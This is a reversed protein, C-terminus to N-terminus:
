AFADQSAPEPTLEPAAPLLFRLLERNCFAPQEELPLHGAAPVSVLRADPIKRALEDGQAPPIWRDSEGWLILTPLRLSAPDFPEDRLHDVMQQGMARQHGKMRMPRFAGEIVEPTVYAPDQVSSRLARERFGRRHLTLVAIMPLMPRVFAAFRNARRRDRDTAAAVLVLRQVREPFKGAFRMAIDGGMSHGVVHVREVGLRDMLGRVLEVQSALTYEGHKPRESYGYGKLDLAVVRFHQALEPIAHRYNFTSGNWGHILVVAEGHGAEVYHVRVGDVDIFSGPVGATEPDLDEFRRVAFRAYINLSCFAAWFLALLRLMRKIM